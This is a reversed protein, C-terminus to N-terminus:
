AANFSVHPHDWHNATVSGRDEMDRWNEWATPAEGNSPNWIKQGWIVYMVNLSKHNNM